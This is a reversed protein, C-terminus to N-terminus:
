FEILVVPEDDERGGAAAYAKRAQTNSAETAVWIEGCGLERGYAVMFKMMERGIGRNQYAEVVSAENIFLSLDKDPHVYDLASVMGVIKDNHWAVVLHHRQDAFFEKAREPKVEYDFLDDGAEILAPLDDITSIKIQIDKM